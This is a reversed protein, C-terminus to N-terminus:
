GDLQFRSTGSWEPLFDLWWQLDLRAEMIIRVHHHLRTVSCSLDILRRLFIRGAPVVKCAFFLKGILSLLQRKICKELHPIFSDSNTFIDQTGSFYQSRHVVIGLFTLHTTSEEIKEEKIPVGIAHCLSKITSLNHYRTQQAQRRFIM